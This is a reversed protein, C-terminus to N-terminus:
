FARKFSPPDYFRESQLVALADASREVKPRAVAFSAELAALAGGDSGTARLHAIQGEVTEITWDITARSCILNMARANHDLITPAHGARKLAGALMPCSLYINNPLSLATPFVLSVRM